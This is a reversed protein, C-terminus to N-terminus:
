SDKNDWLDLSLWAQNQERLKLATYYEAMYCLMKNNGGWAVQPPHWMITVAFGLNCFPSISVSSILAASSFIGSAVMVFPPDGSSDLVIDALSLRFFISTTLTQTKYGQIYKWIVSHKNINLFLFVAVGIWLTLTFCYLKKKLM